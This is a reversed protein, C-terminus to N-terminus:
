ECVSSVWGEQLTFMKLTGNFFTTRTAVYYLTWTSLTLYLGYGIGACTARHPAPNTHALIGSFPLHM